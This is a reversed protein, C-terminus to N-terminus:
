NPDLKVNEMTHSAKLVVTRRVTAAGPHLIEVTYERELQELRGLRFEGYNDSRTEGVKRGAHFLQVVADELCDEVGNKVISVSGAIFWKNYRHLNRYYVRPHTGLEPKMIELGDSLALRQMEADDRKEARMAATPCAQTSRPEKWGKDLLHADFTWAQPLQLEENWWVAGYPCSEVIDRRGKALQPDIIVIGDDRKKVAGRGVKVCPANDCHNCMTPVTVVDVMPPAGHEARKMEIWHHGHKPQPASYGPFDNGVHEDKVALFCNNCNNCRDVDIILNWRKM